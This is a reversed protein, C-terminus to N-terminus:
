AKKWLISKLIWCLNPLSCLCEPCSHLLSMTAMLCLQLWHAKMIDVDQFSNKDHFTMCKTVSGWAKTLMNHSHGFCLFVPTDRFWDHAMFGSSQIVTAIKRPVVQAYSISSLRIDVSACKWLPHTCIHWWMQISPMSPGSACLGVLVLPGAATSLSCWPLAV